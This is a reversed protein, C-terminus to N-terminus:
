PLGLAVVGGGYGVYVVGDVVSAGSLVSTQMPLTKLRAGTAADHV